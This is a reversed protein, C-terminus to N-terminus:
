RRKQGVMGGCRWRESEDHRRMVVAGVCRAEEIDHSQGLAGEVDGGRSQGPAGGRRRWSESGSRRRTAVARRTVVVGVQWAEV